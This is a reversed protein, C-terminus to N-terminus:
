NTLDTWQSGTWRKVGSLIKWGNADAGPQGIGIFVKATSIATTVTPSTFRYGYASIFVSESLASFNSNGVSGLTIVRFRYTKAIELNSTTHTLTGSGSVNATYHVTAFNDYSGQITYGSITSGNTAGATWNLTVERVNKTLSTITPIDPTGIVEYVSSESSTGEYFARVKVWHRQSPSTSISVNTDGAVGMSAFATFGTVNSTTSYAYQYTPTGGSPTTAVTSTITLTATDLAPNISSLFTGGANVSPNTPTIVQDVTTTNISSTTGSVLPYVLYPYSSSPAIDTKFAGRVGLRLVGNVDHTITRTKDVWLKNEGSSQSQKGSPSNAVAVTSGKVGNADYAAYDVDLTVDWTTFGWGSDADVWLRFRVQSSNTVPDYSNQEVLLRLEYHDYAGSQRDRNDYITPM